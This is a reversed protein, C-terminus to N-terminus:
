KRADQTSDEETPKRHRMIQETLGNDVAPVQEVADLRAELDDLRDRHRWYGVADGIALGLLTAEIVRRLIMKVTM